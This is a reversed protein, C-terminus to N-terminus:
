HVFTINAPCTSLVVFTFIPFSFCPLLIFFATIVPYGLGTSLLLTGGLVRIMFSDGGPAPLPSRDILGARWLRSEGLVDSGRQAGRVRDVFKKVERGVEPVPCSGKAWTM